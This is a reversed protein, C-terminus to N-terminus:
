EKMVKKLVSFDNGNIRIFYIGTAYNSLDITATTTTGTANFGAQYIVQGYITIVEISGIPRNITNITIENQTPNPMLSISVDMKNEPVAILTASSSYGSAVQGRIEGNPFASNHIDLYVSDKSFQLSNVPLFPTADTSSWYGEASVDM